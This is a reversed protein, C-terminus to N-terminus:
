KGTEEGDTVYWDWDGMAPKTVWRIYAQLRFRLIIHEEGLLVVLHSGICM